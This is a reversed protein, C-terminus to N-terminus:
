AAEVFSAWNGGRKGAGRVTDHGSAVVADFFTAPKAIGIM